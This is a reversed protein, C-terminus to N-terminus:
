AALHIGIGVYVAVTLDVDSIDVFQDVHNQRSCLECSIMVKDIAFRLDVVARAKKKMEDLFFFPNVM